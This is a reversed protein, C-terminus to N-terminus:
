ESSSEEDSSEGNSRPTLFEVQTAIIETLNHKAGNQDEWRRESIRGEVAVKSGKKCFAAISGAIGDEGQKKGWAVVNHFDSKNKGYNTAMRFNTVAIGDPTYRM